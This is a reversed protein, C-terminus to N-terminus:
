HSTNTSLAAPETRWYILLVKQQATKSGTAKKANPPHKSTSQSPEYAARTKTHQTPTHQHHVHSASRQRHLHKGSPVARIRTGEHSDCRMLVTIEWPRQMKSSEDRPSHKLRSIRKGMGRQTPLATAKHHHANIGADPWATPKGRQRQRHM